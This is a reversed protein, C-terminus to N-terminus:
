DSLESEKGFSFPCRGRAPTGDDSLFYQKWRYVLPEGYGAVDPHGDDTGDWRALRSRIVRRAHIGASSEAELGQFIRKPQFLMVFSNGYNRSRRRAYAPCAAFMFIPEGAFCFEWRPDDTNTPIDDPWPERDSAHLFQLVHWFRRRYYEFDRAQGEPAFFVTLNHRIARNSRSLSLFAALTAPLSSLDDNEVVAYRLEDNREAARGFVCPFEQDMVERHFARYERILWRPVRSPYIMDIQRLLLSCTM